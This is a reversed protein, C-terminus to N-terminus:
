DTPPSGSLPEWGEINATYTHIRYQTRADTECNDQVVAGSWRWLGLTPEALIAPEATGACHSEIEVRVGGLLAMLYSPSSYITEFVMFGYLEMLLAYTM